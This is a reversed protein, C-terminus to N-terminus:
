MFVWPGGYFGMLLLYAKALICSGLCTRLGDTASHISRFCQIKTCFCYMTTRNDDAKMFASKLVSAWGRGNLPSEFAEPM